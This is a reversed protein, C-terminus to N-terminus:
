LVLAKLLMLSETWMVRIVMIHKLVCVYMLLVIDGEILVLICVLGVSSAIEM